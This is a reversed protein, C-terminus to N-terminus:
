NAKLYNIIKTMRLLRVMKLMKFFRLNSNTEWDKTIALAILEFPIISLFDIWFWGKILYNFIIRRWSLIMEGTKSDKYMTFFNLVLDIVFLIDFFYNVTTLSTSSINFSVDLPIMISNFIVIVIILVDWNM